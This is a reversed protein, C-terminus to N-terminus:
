NEGTQWNEVVLKLELKPSKMIIKGPLSKEDTIQYFPYEIDWGNQRMRTINGAADWAMIEVEGDAPRGLMWDSLGTMPLSWGLTAQTLAEADDAHYTKQNSTTLTVGDMNKSLSGLQTGLPSFFQIDDGEEHHHWHMSGSFGKSETLVAMRGTMAFNGIGKITDLHEAYVAPPPQFPQRQPVTTCASTLMVLVAALLTPPLIFPSKV